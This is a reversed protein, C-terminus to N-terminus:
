FTSTIDLVRITEKYIHEFLQDWTIREKSNTRLM